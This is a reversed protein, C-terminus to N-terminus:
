ASKAAWPSGKGLKSRRGPVVVEDFPVGLKKLLAKADAASKKALQKDLYKRSLCSGEQEYVQSLESDVDTPDLMRAYAPLGTFPKRFGKKTKSDAPALGAVPSAEAARPLPLRAFRAFQAFRARASRLRGASAPAWGRMYQVYAMKYPDAMPKRPPLPGYWEENQKRIKEM